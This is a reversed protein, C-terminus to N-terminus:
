EGNGGGVVYVTPPNSKKLLLVVILIVGAVILLPPVVFKAADVAQEAAKEVKKRGEDIAEFSALVASNITPHEDSLWQWFNRPLRKDAGYHVDSIKEATWGQPLKWVRGVKVGISRPLYTTFDTDFTVLVNQGANDEVIERINDKRVHTLFEPLIELWDNVHAELFHPGPALTQTGTTKDIPVEEFNFYGSTEDAM